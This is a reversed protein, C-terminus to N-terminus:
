RSTSSFAAQVPPASTPPSSRAEGFTVLRRREPDWLKLRVACIGDWLSLQPVAHFIPNADHARRLNYNPISASLHHM